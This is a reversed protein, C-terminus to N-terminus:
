VDFWVHVQGTGIASEYNSMKRGKARCDAGGMAGVMMLYHGFFGEPQHALYDKHLGIVSAHDGSDWHSLIREDMQRAQPTRINNTTYRQHDGLEDLPWFAHSMGGSALLVVRGDTKEIASGLVSGFDVFNHTQATQCVGVSLVRENVRGDKKLYHLVNITPYHQAISASTCNMVPVKRQQALSATQRALEPAGRYDYAHDAILGPLEDSTYSGKYHDAGAMIHEVTTIWHTDFIILTDANAADIAQRLKAFGEIMSTDVGGGMTERFSKPAMIGPQHCVVAAGVIKGM